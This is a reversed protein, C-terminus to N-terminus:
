RQLFCLSFLHRITPRGHPCNWPNQMMSMQTLIRQMDAMNLTKGIMIASRCARSALMQKVRSPRPIQSVGSGDTGGERILFILEEIDEQGFQWGGSVPMGTLKVRHGQEGSKQSNFFYKISFSHQSSM